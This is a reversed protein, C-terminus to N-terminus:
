CFENCIILSIAWTAFLYPVYYASLTPKSFFMYIIAAIMIMRDKLTDINYRTSNNGIVAYIGHDHNYMLSLTALEKKEEIAMKRKFYDKHFLVLYKNNGKAEKYFQDKWEEKMTVWYRFLFGLLFSWVFYELIEPKLFEVSIMQLRIAGEPIRGEAMYFVIISISLVLLNRREPSNDQPDM